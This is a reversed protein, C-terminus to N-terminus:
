GGLAPAIIQVQDNEKLIVKGYDSKMILAKNVIIHSLENTYLDDAKLVDSLLSHDPYEKSLNNITIKM